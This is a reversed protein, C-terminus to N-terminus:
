FPPKSLVSNYLSQYLSSTTNLSYKTQIRLKAAKGLTILQAPKELITIIAEALAKPNKPPVCIGTNGIISSSEGTDTAICPTGVGMAEAIVNPFAESSSSSILFDSAAMLRDCDKRQGLCVVYSELGNDSIYRNLLKNNKDIDRGCMIFTIDTFKKVVIGVAACFNHYDKEQCFRGAIIGIRHNEPINFQNLCWARSKARDAVAVDFGNPIVLMKNRPYGAQEHKQKSAESCCIITNASIHCLLAGSLATIKTKISGALPDSHRINNIIPIKPFFVHLFNIINNSHYLWTQIIDPKYHYICGLLKKLNKPLFLLFTRPLNMTIVKIGNAIAFDKLNNDSNKDSFLTVIIHEFDNGNINNVLRVLSREAGGINLDGIIHLILPHKKSKAVSNIEIFNDIIKTARKRWTYNSEVLKFANYALKYRQKGNEKLEYLAKQWEYVDNPKVLLANENNILLNKFVPLESVIMPRKSAMYEFLKLPSMWCGIDRGSKEESYVKESYPALLVDCESLFEDVKDPKLYGMFSLNALCHLRLASIQQITGGAIMFKVDPVARALEVIFDGGKGPYLSGAYGAVLSDRSFTKFETNNIKAGDYCVLIKEPHKKFFVFNNIYYARLAESIVVLAVFNASAFLTNELIKRGLSPAAHSEYIIPKNFYRCALLAYLNRGYFLDPTHTIELLQRYVSYAYKLGSFLPLNTDIKVLRIDFDTNIGYIEKIEKYDYIKPAKRGFLIVSHGLEAFAESMRMVQVSNAKESPIISSSLNAIIM